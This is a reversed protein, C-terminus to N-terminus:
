RNALTQLEKLEADIADRQALLLREREEIGRVAERARISRMVKWDPDTGPEAHLRDARLQLKTTNIHKTRNM